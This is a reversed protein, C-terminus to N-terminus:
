QDEKKMREIIRRMREVKQRLGEREIVAKLLAKGAPPMNKYRWSNLTGVSVGLMEALEKTSKAGLLYRAKEILRENGTDKAFGSEAAREIRQVIKEGLSERDATKMARIHSASYGTSRAIAKEDVGYRQMIEEIYGSMRVGKKTRIHLKIM